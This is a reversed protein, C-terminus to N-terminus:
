NAPTVITHSSKESTLEASEQVHASLRSAALLLDRETVIDYRDFISRTKHGTVKMATHEGTGSRVM